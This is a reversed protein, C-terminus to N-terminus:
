RGYVEELRPSRLGAGFSSLSCRTVDEVGKSWDDKYSFLMAFRDVGPLYLMIVAVM